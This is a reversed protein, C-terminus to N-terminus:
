VVLGTGTEDESGPLPDEWETFVGEIPSLIFIAPIMPATITIAISTVLIIEPFSRIPIPVPCLMVLEECTFATEGVGAIVRNGVWASVETGVAV